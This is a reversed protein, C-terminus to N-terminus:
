QKWEKKKRKQAIDQRLKMRQMNMGEKMREKNKVSLALQTTRCSTNIWQLSVEFAIRTLVYLDLYSMKVAAHYEM